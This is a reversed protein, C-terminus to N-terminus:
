KSRVDESSVDNDRAVAGVGFVSLALMIKEISPQTNEDSDFIARAEGLLLTLAGIVGLTTTKWSSKM